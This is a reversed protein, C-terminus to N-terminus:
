DRRFSIWEPRYLGWVTPRFDQLSNRYATFRTQRVTEIIPLQDHLIQQIRFYYPARQKPEMVATGEDLLRDIEAEWATAPKKQRPRWIHLNGSSRLFNAGNNPEVGGTFGILVADWDLTSDLKDVLTTFELPRYNVRIGLDALDQQFIVCMRERVPTGTNTTLNFELRNGRPDTRVGPSKLHYGAAELLEAALKPDYGYDKLAPNHFIKNAPSVDAVAPVAMGHFCLNIMSRKDVLHALARMFRLDTFWRLRPDTVGAKVYHRPNRNFVFFLSGTDIGVKTVTIGLKPAKERLDTVEEPRPTYIDTQGSLFRLYAANQDQVIMDTRGHLRPLQGGQEAKMWYTPNRLFQIVQSPV